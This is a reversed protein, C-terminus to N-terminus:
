VEMALAFISQLLTPLESSFVISGKVSGVGPWSIQSADCSVYGHDISITYVILISKPVHAEPSAAGEPRDRCWSLRLPFRM